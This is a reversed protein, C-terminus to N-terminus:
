KEYAFVREKNESKILKKKFKKLMISSFIFFHFGLLDALVDYWCFERGPIPIQHLEDLISLLFSLFFIELYIENRIFPKIKNNKANGSKNFQKNFSDTLQSYRMLYYLMAFLFYQSFHAIKDPAIPPSPLSVSLRPISSVTFVLISYLIFIILYIKKKM